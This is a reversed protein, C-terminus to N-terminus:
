TLFSKLPIHRQKEEKKERMRKTRSVFVVSLTLLSSLEPTKRRNKFYIITNVKQKNAFNNKVACDSTASRQQDQNDDDNDDNTDHTTTTTTAAALVIVNTHNM